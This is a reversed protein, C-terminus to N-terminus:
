ATKGKRAAKCDRTKREAKSQVEKEEERLSRVRNDDAEERKTDGTYERATSGRSTEHEETYEELVRSPPALQYYPRESVATM